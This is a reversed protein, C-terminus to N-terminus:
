HRRDLSWSAVIYPTLEPKKPSGGIRLGRVEAFQSVFGNAHRSLLPWSSTEALRGVECIIAFGVPGGDCNRFRLQSFAIRFEATWGDSERAVEVDWVADWGPTGPAQAVHRNHHVHWPVLNAM